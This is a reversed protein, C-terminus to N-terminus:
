RSPGGEDLVDSLARVLAAPPRWAFVGCPTGDLVPTEAGAMGRLFLYLVGALHEDPDYGPQRWRLYRHLAVTYFLAQLGYHARSMESALAAPTYHGLTLEEDPAALRNTKYDALVYRPAPPGSVRAVLDISGTLFGRVSSRLAPDELRAAYAALPDGPPLHERLVAAIAELTLRGSPDDGGVLPLEFGLEDLRDVAHLDRLRLGDVLPGLPTEIAARLGAVADTVSGIDLRRRSASLEVQESLAGDLDDAAFDTAEFVRHVLTGFTVGVPMGGLPSPVALEAPAASLSPVPTPVEPEDHLSPEEPESTVLPDHAASTIDSYSTRRWRLDLQRDFRAAALESATYAAPPSWTAQGDVHSRAVSICGPAAAQLEGLRALLKADPPITGGDAPVYGNPEKALLLRGLPSHQSDWAGAWWVTAQHKARTLAVYALRLEEGREELHHQDRHKAYGPGDLGVDITARNGKAPDHFLVPEPDRPTYGPTWLFPCYVIPFELGKSRHITLIQVAQADSELRRTREEEGDEQEAAAIQQALWSRLATPGLREAAAARHLLQALHRVDTLRREGDVGALVRGALDEGIM